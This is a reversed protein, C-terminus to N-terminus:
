IQKNNVDSPRSMRVTDEAHDVLVLFDSGPRGEGNVYRPVDNSNENTM